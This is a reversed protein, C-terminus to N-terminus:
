EWEGYAELMGASVEHGEGPFERYEVSFGRAVAAEVAKRALEPTVSRDDEGHLQLFQPAGAMEDPWWEQKLRGGICVVRSVGPMDMWLVSALYGGQSFGVVDLRGWDVGVRVGDSRVRGILGALWRAAEAMGARLRGQDGAFLYWAHGIGPERRKEFPLPGDPIVWVRDGRRIAPQLVQAFWEANEGMGHLALTVPWGGALECGPTIVLARAERNVTYTIAHTQSQERRDHATPM